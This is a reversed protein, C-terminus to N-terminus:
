RRRRSVLGALGVLAVAGPAPVADANFIFNDMRNNGTANTAGTFTVRMYATAANDLGTAVGLSTITGTGLAFNAQMGTVTAAAFWNTGDTSYDWQQTSFGTGTKQVAYTVGLNGMGSMSFKFVMSKGNAATSAGGVVALAAPSTTVTSMGGSANLATGGFANIETNTSGTAPQFFNSSGNTGDLYLNGSGFNAIFAKPCTPSAAIATGGNSTTQFDWAAVVAASATSAVISCLGVAILSSKM